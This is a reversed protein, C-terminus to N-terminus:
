RQSLPLTLTPRNNGRDADPLAPTAACDIRVRGLQREGFEWFRVDLKQHLVVGARCLACLLAGLLRKILAGLDEEPRQRSPPGPRCLQACGHPASSRM